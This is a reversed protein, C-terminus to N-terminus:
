AARELGGDSLCRLLRERDGAGGFGTFRAAMRVPGPEDEDTGDWVLTAYAFVSRGPGPEGSGPLTVQVLMEVGPEVAEDLEFMLGGESIDYVHGELIEEGKPLRRVAVPTYM